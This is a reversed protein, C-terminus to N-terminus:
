KPITEIINKEDVKYREDVEQVIGENYDDDETKGQSPKGRGTVPKRPFSKFVDTM